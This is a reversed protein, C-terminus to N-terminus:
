WGEDVPKRGVTGDLIITIDVNRDRRELYRWRNMNNLADQVDYGSFTLHRYREDKPRIYVAPIVECHIDIPEPAEASKQSTRSSPSNM